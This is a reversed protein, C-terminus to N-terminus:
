NRRTLAQLMRLVMLVMLRSISHIRWKRYKMAKGYWQSADALDNKQRSTYGLGALRKGMYYHVCQQELMSLNDNKMQHDLVKLDNTRQRNGDLSLNGQHRGISVLPEDIYAFDTLRAARLAFDFDENKEIQRWKGVREHLVRRVSLVSPYMPYGSLLLEFMQRQRLLYTKDSKSISESFNFIQPFIQSNTVPHFKGIGGDPLYDFRTFDTFVVGVLPNQQLVSVCKEIRGSEYLDDGDLYFIFEGSAQGLGKNRPMAAAGSNEPLATVNIEPFLKQVIEISNDTSRDDVLFIEVDKYSQARVSEIVRGIHKGNNFMPIIVSVRGKVIDKYMNRWRFFETNAANCDLLKCM